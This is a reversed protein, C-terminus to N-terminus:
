RYCSTSQHSHLLTVLPTAGFSSATVMFTLTTNALDVSATSDVFVIDKAAAINLYCRRMFATQIALAWGPKGDVMKDDFRMIEPNAAALEKLKERITTDDRGGYRIIVHKSAFYHWDRRTPCLQRNSSLELWSLHPNMEQLWNNYATMAAAVSGQHNDLFEVLKERTDNSIKRYRLSALSDCQHTHHWIMTFETPFDVILPDNEVRRKALWRSKATDGYDLPPFEKIQFKAPCNICKSQLPSGDKTVTKRKAVEGDKADAAKSLHQGSEHPAHVCVYEKLQVVKVGKVENSGHPKAKSSFGAYFELDAIFSSFKLKPLRLKIKFKDSNVQHFFQVVAIYHISPPFLDCIERPLDSLRQM